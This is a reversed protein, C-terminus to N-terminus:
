RKMWNELFLKIPIMEIAYDNRVTLYLFTSTHSYLTKNPFCNRLSDLRTNTRSIIFLLEKKGRKKKKKQLSVRASLSAKLGSEINNRLLQCAVVCVQTFVGRM